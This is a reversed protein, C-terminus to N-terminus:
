YYALSVGTHARSCWHAMHMCPSVLILGAVAGILWPSVLILGAAAFLGAYSGQQVLSVLYALFMGILVLGAAGILLWPSVLVYSHQM